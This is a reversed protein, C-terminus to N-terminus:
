GEGLEVNARGYHRFCAPFEVYAQHIMYDTLDLQSMVQSISSM